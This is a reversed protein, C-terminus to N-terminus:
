HKKKGRRKQTKSTEVSMDGLESIREETMHLRSILGDFSKMKTVTNIELMEKKNNRLNEMERSVNCM